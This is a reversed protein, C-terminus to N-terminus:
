IGQYVGVPGMRVRVTFASRAHLRSAPTLKQLIRQAMPQQQTPLTYGGGSVRSGEQLHHLPVGTDLTYFVGACQEMRGHKAHHACLGDM